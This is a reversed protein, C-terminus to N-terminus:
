LLIHTDNEDIYNKLEGIRKINITKCGWTKKTLLLQECLCKLRSLKKFTEKRVIHVEELGAKSESHSARGRLVFLENLEDLTFGLQKAPNYDSIILVLDKNKCGFASELLKWYEQFAKISSGAFLASSYLELGIDKEILEECANDFLNFRPSSIIELKASLQQYITKTPFGNLKEEDKENEPRLQDQGLKHAIRIPINNLFSIIYIYNSLDYPLEVSEPVFIYKISEDDNLPKEGTKIILGSPNIEMEIELDMISENNEREIFHFEYKKFNKIKPKYLNKPIRPFFHLSYCTLFRM